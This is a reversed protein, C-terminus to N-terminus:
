HLQENDDATTSLNIVYGCRSSTTRHLQNLVATIRPLAHHCVKIGNKRIGRLTRPLTSMTTITDISSGLNTSSAPHRHKPSSSSHLGRRCIRPEPNRGSGADVNRNSSYYLKHCRYRGFGILSFDRNDKYGGPIVLRWRISARLQERQMARARGVRGRVRILAFRNWVRRYEAEEPVAVPDAVEVLAAPESAGMTPSSSRSAGLKSMLPSWMWM